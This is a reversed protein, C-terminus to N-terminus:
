TFPSSATKHSVRVLTYDDDKGYLVHLGSAGHDSRATHGDTSGNRMKQGAKTASMNVRKTNGSM